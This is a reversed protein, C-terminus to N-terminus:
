VPIPERVVRQYHRQCSTSALLAHHSVPFQNSSSASHLREMHYHTPLAGWILIGSLLPERLAAVDRPQMYAKLSLMMILRLYSTIYYTRIIALRLEAEALRQLLSRVDKSAEDESLPQMRAFALAVQFPCSAYLEQSSRNEKNM